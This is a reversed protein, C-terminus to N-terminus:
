LSKNELPLHGKENLYAQLLAAEVFGPSEDKDLLFYEIEIAGYKRCLEPFWVNARVEGRINTLRGPLDQGKFEGNQTITGSRGIYLIEGDECVRVLYAGYPNKVKARRFHERVVSSFRLQPESYEFEHSEYRKRLRQLLEFFNMNELLVSM